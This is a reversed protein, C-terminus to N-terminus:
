GNRKRILTDVTESVRFAAVPGAVLRGVLQLSLEGVGLRHEVVLLRLRLREGVAEVDQPGFEVLGLRGL